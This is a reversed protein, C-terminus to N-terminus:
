EDSDEAYQRGIRNDLAERFELLENYGMGNTVEFVMRNHRERRETTELRELDLAEARLRAIQILRDNSM